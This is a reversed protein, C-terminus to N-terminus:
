DFVERIKKLLENPLIPKSIFDLGEELIGKKHIVNADYGSMFIVKVDPREKM